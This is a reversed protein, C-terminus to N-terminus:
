KIYIKDNAKIWQAFQIIDKNNLRVCGKSSPTGLTTSDPTGHFYIFRQLSDVNGGSNRGSEMGALQIIRSLIWDREPYTASLAPTYLEGTWQRGVLVSNEELELGIVRHVTHWGRPTCESGEQEGLGNKATSCVYSHCLVDDKYCLVRQAASAVIVLKNSSM